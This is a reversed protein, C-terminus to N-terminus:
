NRASTQDGTAESRQAAPRLLAGFEAVGSALAQNQDLVVGTVGSNRTTWARAAEPTTFFNIHGCTRDVSPCCADGTNGAFVVATDPHWRATDHDVHITVTHNTDPETSTITVPADLMTSMGLADIACMAHATPGGDWTVRHRTPLPSFPYAARIEGYEDVAVLDRETLESLAPGPDIGRDRARQELEARRPARGTEAFSTLVVRHLRQAAPTLAAAAQCKGLELDPLETM